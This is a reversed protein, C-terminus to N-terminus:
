DELEDMRCKVAMEVVELSPYDLEKVLCLVASLLNSSRTIPRRPYPARQNANCTLRDNALRQAASSLREHTQRNNRDYTQRSEDEVTSVPRSRERYMGGSGDSSSNDGQNIPPEHYGGNSIRYPHRLLVPPDEELQEEYMHPAPLIGQQQRQYQMDGDEYYYQGGSGGGVPVDDANRIIFDRSPKRTLTASQTDAACRPPSRQGVPSGQQVSPQPPSSSIPTRRISLASLPTSMSTPSPISTTSPTSRSPSTSADGSHRTDEPGTADRSTEVPSHNQQPREPSLSPQQAQHQSPSPSQHQGQQQQQYQISAIHVKFTAYPCHVCPNYFLFSFGSAVQKILRVEVRHYPAPVLGAAPAAPLAPPSCERLDSDPQPALAAQAQVQPQDWYEASSDQPHLLERGRRMADQVEEPQVPIKDLTKLGPLARLVTYEEENACPNEELWLNKLKPLNQLYLIQGLDAIENKRVFLEVLNRCHQFDELSRIKNVSLSLVEVNQMRRLLRVDSLESGWCNLKTVQGIDSQKTRAVVMEETLRAM